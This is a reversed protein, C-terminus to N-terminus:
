MRFTLKENKDEDRNTGRPFEWFKLWDMMNTHRYMEIWQLANMKSM